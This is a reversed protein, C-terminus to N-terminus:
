PYPEVAVEGSEEADKDDAAVSESPSHLPSPGLAAGLARGSAGRALPSGRAAQWGSGGSGGGGGEAVFGLPAPVHQGVSSPSPERTAPVSQSHGGLAHMRTDSNRRRGRSAVERLQMAKMMVNVAGSMSTLKFQWIPACSSTPPPLFVPVASFLTCLM